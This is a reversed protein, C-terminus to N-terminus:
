RNWPPAKKVTQQQQPSQEQGTRIKKFVDDPVTILDTETFKIKLNEILDMIETEPKKVSYTLKYKKTKLGETIEEYKIKSPFKKSEPAYIKIGYSVATIPIHKEKRQTKELEDTRKRM